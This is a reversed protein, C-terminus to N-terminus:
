KVLEEFYSKVLVKHDDDIEDEFAEQSVANVRPPFSEEFDRNTLPKLQSIDVGSLLPTVELDLEDTGLIIQTKDGFIDSNSGRVFDGISDAMDKFPELHILDDTVPKLDVLHVNFVAVLIVAYCVGTLFVLRRFSKGIGLFYSAKINRMKRVVESHLQRVVENDRDLYDESTQLAERLEPVKSEISKMNVKRLNNRTHFFFFPLAVYLAYNWTLNGISAIILLVVSFVILTDLISNFVQITSVALRLERFAHRINRSM